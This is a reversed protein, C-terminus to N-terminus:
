LGFYTHLKHLSGGITEVSSQTHKEGNFNVGPILKHDVCLERSM